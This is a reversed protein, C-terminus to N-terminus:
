DRGVSDIRYATISAELISMAGFEKLQSNVFTIPM